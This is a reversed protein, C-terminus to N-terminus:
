INYIYIYIYPSQERSITLHILNFITINVIYIYGFKCFHYATNKKINKIM